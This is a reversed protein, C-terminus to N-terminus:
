LDPALQSTYVFDGWDEGRSLHNPNGHGRFVRFKARSNFVNFISDGAFTYFNGTSLNTRRIHRAWRLSAEVGLNVNPKVPYYQVDSEIDVDKYYL